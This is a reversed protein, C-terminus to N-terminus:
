SGGRAVLFSAGGVEGVEAQCRQGSAEYGVVVVSGSM